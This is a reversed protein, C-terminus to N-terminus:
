QARRKFVTTMGDVTQSITDATEDYQYSGTKGSTLHIKVEGNEVTYTGSVHGADNGSLVVSTMKGDESFALAISRYMEVARKFDEGERDVVVGYQLNLINAIGDEINQTKGDKNIFSDIEWVGVVTGPKAVISQSLESATTVAKNSKSCGTFVGCVLVCAAALALLKKGKM